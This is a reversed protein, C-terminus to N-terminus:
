MCCCEWGMQGPILPTRIQACDAVSRAEGAGSWWEWGGPPPPHSHKYSPRWRLAMQPCTRTGVGRCAVMAKRHGVHQRRSPTVPSRCVYGASARLRRMQRGLSPGAAQGVGRGSGGASSGRWCVPLCPLTGAGRGALMYLSGAEAKACKPVLGLLGQLRKNCRVTVPTCLESSKCGKTHQVSHLPHQM